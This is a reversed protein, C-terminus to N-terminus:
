STCLQKLQCIHPCSICRVLNELVNHSKQFAFMIMVTINFSTFDLSKKKALKPLLPRISHSRSQTSNSTILQDVSFCLSLFFHLIILMEYLDFMFPGAYKKCKYVFKKIWSARMNGLVWYKDNIWNHITYTARFHKYQVPHIFLCMVLVRNILCSKEVQEGGEWGGVRDQSTFQLSKLQFCKKNQCRAKLNWPLWM